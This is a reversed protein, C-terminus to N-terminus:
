YKFSVNIPEIGIWRLADLLLKIIQPIYSLHYLLTFLVFPSQNIVHLLKFEKIIQLGNTM